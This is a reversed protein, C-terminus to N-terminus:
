EPLQTETESKEPEAVTVDDAPIEVIDAKKDAIPITYMVSFAGTVASGRTGLGPIYWPKGYTNGSEHLISGYKFSWGMFLNDVIRVKLGMVLQFYGVTSKQSPIDFVSPENWYGADMRVNKVEYTFPSLGYRIGAHFQYDDTKKFLFNYNMGIRFYPSLSSKYTYNGDEPTDDAAGLGVEVIPKFRNYMSLEVWAEAGGYKQGFLRMVPDWMDVGITLAHFKPYIIRDKAKIATSDVYEKGTITDMLFVNGKDDKMEVYTSLDVEETKKEKNKSAPRTASQPTVPSVRRQAATEIGVALLLTLLIIIPHKMM